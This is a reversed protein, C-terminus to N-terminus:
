EKFFFVTQFALVLALVLCKVGKFPPELRFWFVLVQVLFILLQQDSRSQRYRSCRGGDHKLHSNAANVIADVRCQTIDGRVIHLTLTPTIKVNALTSALSTSPAAPKGEVLGPGTGSGGSTACTVLCSTSAATKALFERGRPSCLYRCHYLYLKLPILICM